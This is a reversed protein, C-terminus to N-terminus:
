NSKVFEEKVGKLAAAVAVTPDGTVICGKGLPGEDAVGKVVRLEEVGVEVVTGAEWKAEEVVSVITEVVRQTSM